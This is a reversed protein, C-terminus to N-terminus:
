TQAPRTDRKSLHPGCLAIRTLRETWACLNADREPLDAHTVAREELTLAILGTVIASSLSTGSLFNYRNGPVSSFVNTAPAVIRSARYLAANPYEGGSED